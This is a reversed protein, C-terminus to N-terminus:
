RDDDLDTGEAEEEEGEEEDEEEEQESGDSPTERATKMKINVEGVGSGETPAREADGNDDAQIAQAKVVAAGGDNVAISSSNGDKAPLAQEVQHKSTGNATRRRAPQEGEVVM